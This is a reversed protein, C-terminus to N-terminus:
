WNSAPTHPCPSPRTCHSPTVTLQRDAMAKAIAAATTGTDLAVTEGDTLLEVVARALREKARTGSM